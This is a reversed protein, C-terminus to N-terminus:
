RSGAAQDRVPIPRPIGVPDAAKERTLFEELATSDPDPPLTFGQEAAIEVIREWRKPTRVVRRISPINKSSSLSGDRRQGRDHFGRHHEQRSEKEGGRSRPDPRRRIGTEGRDDGPEARGPGAPCAEHGTRGPGAAAAKRGARGRGFSGRARRRKGRAMRRRQRLGTECPQSCGGPLHGTGELSGNAAIVIEVVVALRDERYNLSTLDTSLKEPLMPFITAATYVSTTNHRAHDDIASGKAVLSAVDAVAVLVRTKDGPQAEAVTLQDLDRSDDNDISVWPLHRLDRVKRGDVAAPAAIRDVESQVAASFDPLLGRDLMARHAIQQLHRRDNADM